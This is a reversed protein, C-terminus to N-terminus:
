EWHPSAVDGWPVGEKLWVRKRKAVIMDLTVITIYRALVGIGLSVSRVLKIGERDSPLKM